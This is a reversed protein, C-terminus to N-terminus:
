MIKINNDKMLQLLHKTLEKKVTWQRRQDCRAGVSITYFAGKIEMIGSFWPGEVIDKNDAMRKPLETNVLTEVTEVPVELSINITAFATSYNETLNLVGNIKSNNFTKVNGVADQVRTTRLGIGRVVGTFNDITVIDNVRFEREFIIFLGAIIDSILSNAGLGVVGTIIGGFTIVTGTQVGLMQLSYFLLIMVGAYNIISLILRMVTELAPNLNSSIMEVVKGAGKLVALIIVTLYLVYSVSFFNLGKPWQKGLMYAFLSGEEATGARLAALILIGALVYLAISILMQAPGTVRRIVVGANYGMRRGEDARQMRQEPTEEALKKLEYRKESIIAIFSVAFMLLTIVLSIMVTRPIYKFMDEKDMLLMMRVSRAEKLNALEDYDGLKLLEGFVSGYLGNTYRYTDHQYDEDTFGFTNIESESLGHYDLCKHPSEASVLVAHGGLSTEVASLSTNVSAAFGLSLNGSLEDKILLAGNKREITGTKDKEYEEKSHYVTRHNEKDNSVYLDMPVAITAANWGEEVAEELKFFYEKERRLVKLVDEDTDHAGSLLDYHWDKGSTAVARGNADIIYVEDYAGMYCLGELIGSEPVGFTPNGYVDPLTVTKGADDTETYRYSEDVEFDIAYKELRQLSSRTSRAISLVRNQYFKGVEEGARANKTTGEVFADVARPGYQMSIETEAVMEFYVTAATCLLAGLLIMGALKRTVTSMETETMAAGCITIIIVVATVVLMILVICTAYTKTMGYYRYIMVYDGLEESHYPATYALFRDKDLALERVGTEGQLLSVDIGHDIAKEGIVHQFDSCGYRIIGTNMDVLCETFGSDPTDLLFYTSLDSLMSRASEEMGGSCEMIVYNDAALSYNSKINGTCVACYIDKHGNETDVRLPEQYDMEESQTDARSIAKMDMEQATQKLQDFQEQTLIGSVVISDGVMVRNMDTTLYVKGGASVIHIAEVDSDAVLEQLEGSKLYITYDYDPTGFDTGSYVSALNTVLMENTMKGYKDISRIQESREDFSQFASQVYGAALDGFAGRGSADMIGTVVFWALALAIGVPILARKVNEKKKLIIEM